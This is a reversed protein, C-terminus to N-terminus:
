FLKKAVSQPIQSIKGDKTVSALKSNGTALLEKTKNNIVEYEFTVSAKNIGKIITKIIITEEYQAPKIYKIYTDAVVLFVGQKEMESYPFGAAKLHESRALEFWELYRSYYVRKMQDTESYRVSLKTEHTKM